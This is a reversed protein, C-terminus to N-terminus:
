KGDDKGSDDKGSDDSSSSGGRDEYGSRCDSRGDAEENARESEVAREQSEHVNGRQDVYYEDDRRGV